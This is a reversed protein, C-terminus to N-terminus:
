AAKSIAARIQQDLRNWEYDSEHTIELTGGRAYVCDPFLRNLLTLWGAPGANQPKFPNAGEASRALSGWNKALAPATLVWTPHLQKYLEACRFIEQTTLDSSVEKIDALAVAVARAGARTLKTLDRTGTALALADFLENRPKEGKAAKPKKRFVSETAVLDNVVKIWEAKHLSGGNDARAKVLADFCKEGFTPTSM